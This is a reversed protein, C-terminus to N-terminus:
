GRSSLPELAPDLKAFMRSLRGLHWHALGVALTLFLQVCELSTLQYATALRRVLELRKRKSLSRSPVIRRYNQHNRGYILRKHCWKWISTMELNMVRADAAFRLIGCGYRNVASKVFITDAGRLIEPFPGMRDMLSKRVAMNGAWGYYLERAEVSLIHSTKVADYEGLLQMIRSGPPFEFEGLVLDVGPCRMIRVIQELWDARPACDSDTFAIIEGRAEQLGRNRAAYAGRKTESLLRIEPHRRLIAASHDTSGNDIVIYECLEKSYTQKLLGRICAELWAESNYVPIIVSIDM